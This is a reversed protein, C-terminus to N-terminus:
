TEAVALEILLSTLNLGSGLGKEDVALRSGFFFFVVQFLCCALKPLDDPFLNILNETYFIEAVQKKM